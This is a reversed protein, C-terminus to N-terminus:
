PLFHGIVRDDQQETTYPIDAYARLDHRIIRSFKTKNVRWSLNLKIVSRQRRNYFTKCDDLFVPIHKDPALFALRNFIGLQSIDTNGAGILPKEFQVKLQEAAHQGINCIVLYLLGRDFLLDVYIDTDSPPLKADPAIERLQSERRNATTRTTSSSRRRGSVRKGSNGVTSAM